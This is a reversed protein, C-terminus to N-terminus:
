KKNKVFEYKLELVYHNNLISLYNGKLIYKFLYKCAKQGFVYEINIHTGYKLTLFENYAVVDVDTLCREKGRQQKWYTLGHKNYDFKDFAANRDLPKCRQYAVNNDPDNGPNLDEDRDDFSLIDDAQDYAADKDPFEFNLM